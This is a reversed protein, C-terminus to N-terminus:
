LSCLMRLIFQQCCTFSHTPLGPFSITLAPTQKFFHLQYVGGQGMLRRRLVVGLFCMLKFQMVVAVLLSRAIRRGDTTHAEGM